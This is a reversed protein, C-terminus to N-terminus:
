LQWAVLIIQSTRVEFSKVYCHYHKQQIKELNNAIIPILCTIDHM